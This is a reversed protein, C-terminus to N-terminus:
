WSLVAPPVIALPVLWVGSMVSAFVSVAPVVYVIVALAASSAPRVDSGFVLVIVGTADPLPIHSVVFGVVSM